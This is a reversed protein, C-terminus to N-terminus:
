LPFIAGFHNRLFDFSIYGKSIYPELVLAPFLRGEFVNGEINRSTFPHIKHARRAAAFGGDEFQQQPEVAASFTFYRDVASGNCVIVNVTQTLVEASHRLLGFEEVVGDLVVNCVVVGVGGLFLDVSSSANGFEDWSCGAAILLVLKL